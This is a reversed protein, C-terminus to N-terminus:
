HASKSTRRGSRSAKKRTTLTPSRDPVAPLLVTFVSGEGVESEVTMRGRHRNVIHKVIALGLGTGGLARSRAPDVRYFRETLRPLHEGPIGEGQDRVSVAIGHRIGAASDPRLRVTVESGTRGYAIANALLNQFVQTLQEPDGPVDALRDPAEVIIGVQRDRAAIELADVVGGVITRLDCREEPPMHEDLEIQSLSLLDRVLRAMRDAQQGMIGLFRERAEADDRAPGSLTEIFGTLASLPTRLEHSANAVFDARMQEARKIKTIDHLGILVAWGARGERDEDRRAPFPNINAEFVREVPVPSTYSITKPAGGALVADVAALIDPQRLVVALDQGEIRSGFLRLAADNAWEVMRDATLVLLPDGIAEMISQADERRQAVAHDYRQWREQLAAVTGALWRGAETLMYPRAPDAGGGPGIQRVFGMLEALDRLFGAALLAAGGVVLLIGLVVPIVEWGLVIALIVIVAVGPSAMLSTLAIFRGTM